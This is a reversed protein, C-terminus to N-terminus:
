RGPGSYNNSASSPVGSPKKPPNSLDYPYQETPGVSKATIVPSNTDGVFPGKWCAATDFWLIGGSHMDYWNDYKEADREIPNKSHEAAMNENYVEDLGYEYASLKQTYYGDNDYPNGNPDTYKTIGGEEYSTTMWFSEIQKLEKFSKDNWVDRTQRASWSDFKDTDSYDLWAVEGALAAGQWQGSRYVLNDFYGQYFSAVSGMVVAFGCIRLKDTWKEEEILSRVDRPKMVM